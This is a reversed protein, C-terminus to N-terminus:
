SHGAPISTPFANYPYERRRSYCVDRQTYLRQEPERRRGPRKDPRDTVERSLDLPDLRLDDPLEKELEPADDESPKLGSRIMLAWVKQAAILFLLWDYRRLRRM